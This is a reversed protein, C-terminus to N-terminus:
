ASTLGFRVMLGGRESRGAEIHGGSGRIAAAAISMGLGSRPGRRAPDSQWFRTFIKSADAVGPGDDQYMVCVESSSRSVEFSASTGAPTHARLNALLNVIVQTVRDIDACVMEGSAASSKNSVAVVHTGDTDVAEHDAVLDRLLAMIDFYEERADRTELRTLSQLDAVLRTMRAAESSIRRVAERARDGELSNAELMDSYGVIATLPTRLEHGADAVFQRLQENSAQERALAEDQEDLMTNLARAVDSFETGELGPSVVVREERQGSALHSAVQAIDSFPRVGISLVWSLLVLLIALVIAVSILQEIAVIAATQSQIVSSRGLTVWLGQPFASTHYLGTLYRWGDVSSYGSHSVVGGTGSVTALGTSPGYTYLKTTGGVRFIAVDSPEGNDNFASSGARPLSFSNAVSAIDSSLGRDVESGLTSRVLTITIINVVLIILACAVFVALVRNRLTFRRRPGSM